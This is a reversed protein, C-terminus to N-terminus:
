GALASNARGRTTRAPATFASIIVHGWFTQGNQQGIQTTEEHQGAQVIRAILNTRHEDSLAEARVSRSRVPDALLAQESDFGLLRVGAQNVRVFQESSLDYIGIFDDSKEFLLDTLPNSLLDNLMHAIVHM